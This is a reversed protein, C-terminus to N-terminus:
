LEISIIAKWKKAILGNKASVFRHDYKLGPTWDINKSKM